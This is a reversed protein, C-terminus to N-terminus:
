KGEAERVQADLEDARATDGATRAEQAQKRLQEVEANASGSNTKPTRATNDAM